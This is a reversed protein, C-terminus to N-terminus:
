QVTSVAIIDNAPSRMFDIVVAIAGESAMRVRNFALSMM